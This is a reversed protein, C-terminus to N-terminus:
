LILVMFVSKKSWTLTVAEIKQVGPQADQAPRAEDNSSASGADALEHGAEKDEGRHQPINPDDVATSTSTATKNNGFLSHLKEIAM